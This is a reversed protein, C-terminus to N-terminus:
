FLRHIATSMRYRDAINSLRVSQFTAKIPEAFAAQQSDTLDGLSTANGCVGDRLPPLLAQEAPMGNVISVLKQKFIGSRIWRLLM